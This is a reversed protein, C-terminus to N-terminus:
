DGQARKATKLYTVSRAIPIVPTRLLDFDSRLEKHVQRANQWIEFAFWESDVTMLGRANNVAALKHEANLNISAIQRNKPDLVYLRFYAM